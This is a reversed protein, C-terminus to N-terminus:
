WTPVRFPGAAERIQGGCQGRDRATRDDVGLQDVNYQAHGSADEMFAVVSAMFSSDTRCAQVGWFGHHVGRKRPHRNSFILLPIIRM